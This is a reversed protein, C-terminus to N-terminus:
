LQEMFVNEQLDCNLFVNNIDIQQIDWKNSVAITFIVRITAAKVVPIFTDFFDLGATQSFGKLRAKHKLISGDPKFNTRFIWKSSVLNMEVSYPVLTWTNNSQLALFEENMAKLWKPDTMAAKVTKPEHSEDLDALYVAKAKVIGNKARTIMPHINQVVLCPQSATNIATSTSSNTSVPSAIHVPISFTSSNSNNPKVNTINHPPVCNSLIFTSLSALGLVMHVTLMPLVLFFKYPFELENFVVHKSSHFDLKHRNYDRLYPFFASTFDDVFAIYYRYGETSLLPALGWIDSYILELPTTTTHQSRSFPLKHMKGVYVQSTDNRSVANKSEMDRIKWKVLRLELTILTEKINCLMLKVLRILDWFNRILANSASSLQMDQNQASRVIFEKDLDEVEEEITTTTEVIRIQTTATIITTAITLVELERDEVM